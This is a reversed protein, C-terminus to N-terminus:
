KYSIKVQHKEVPVATNMIIQANRKGIIAIETARIAHRLLTIGKCGLGAQHLDM